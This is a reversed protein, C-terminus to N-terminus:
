SYFLADMFGDLIRKAEERIEEKEKDSIMYVKFKRESLLNLKLAKIEEKKRM